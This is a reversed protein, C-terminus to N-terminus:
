RECASPVMQLSTVNLRIEKADQILIGKVAMKQGQHISPNFVSAGLLQYSRTGLPEAEAAKLALSSISQTRSVVPAGANTLMWTGRSNQELCGVAGVIDLVSQERREQAVDPPKTLDQSDM